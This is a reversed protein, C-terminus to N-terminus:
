DQGVWDCPVPSCLGSLSRNQEEGAGNVQLGVHVGSGQAVLRETKTPALPGRMAAKRDFREPWSGQLGAPHAADEPGAGAPVRKRWAKGPRRPTCILAKPNPPGMGLKESFYQTVQTFRSFGLRGTKRNLGVSSEPFM